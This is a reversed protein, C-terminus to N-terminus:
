SACGMVDCSSSYCFRWTGFCRNKQSCNENKYWCLKDFLLIGAKPERAPFKKTFKVITSERTGPFETHFGPFINQSNQWLLYLLIIYDNQNILTSVESDLVISYRHWLKFQKVTPLTPPLSSGGIQRPFSEYNRCNM